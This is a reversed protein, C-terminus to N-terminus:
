HNMRILEIFKKETSRGSGITLTKIGIAIPDAMSLMHTLNSLVVREPYFSTGRSYIM